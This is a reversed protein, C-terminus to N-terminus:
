RKFWDFLAKLPHNDTTEATKKRRNEPRGPIYFVDDEDYEGDDYEGDTASIIQSVIEDMLLNMDIPMNTFHSFFEELNPDSFGDVYKVDVNKVMVGDQIQLTHTQHVDRTINNVNFLGSMYVDKIVVDDYLCRNTIGFRFVDKKLVLSDGCEFDNFDSIKNFIYQYSFDSNIEAFIVDYNLDSPTLASNFMDIKIFNFADALSYVRIFQRKYYPTDSKCWEAPILCPMVEFGFRMIFDNAVDSYNRHAELYAKLKKTDLEYTM